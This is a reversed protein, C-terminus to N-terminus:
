LVDGVDNIDVNEGQCAVLFDQLGTLVDIPNCKFQYWLAICCM